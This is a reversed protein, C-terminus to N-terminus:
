DAVAAKVEEPVGFAVLYMSGSIAESIGLAESPQLLIMWRREDGGGLPAHCVDFAYGCVPDVLHRLTIKTNGKATRHWLGHDDNISECEGRFVQQMKTLDDFGFKVTIAGEWDFRPFTPNPGLRNGVTMQAAFTCFIGGDTAGSAPRLEMRIACGTGRANAHYIALRPRFGPARENENVKENKSEQM